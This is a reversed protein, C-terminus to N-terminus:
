RSLKKGRLRRSRPSTESNRLKSPEAPGGKFTERASPGCPQTAAAGHPLKTRRTALQNIGAQLPNSRIMPGEEHIEPKRAPLDGEPRSDPTSLLSSEGLNRDSRIRPRRGPKSRTVNHAPTASNTSATAKPAVAKQAHLNLDQGRYWRSVKHSEDLAPAYAWGGSVGREEACGRQPVSSLTAPTTAPNARASSVNGKM